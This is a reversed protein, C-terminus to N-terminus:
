FYRIIQTYTIILCIGM